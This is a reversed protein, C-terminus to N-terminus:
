LHALMAEFSSTVRSIFSWNACHASNADGVYLKAKENVVMTAAGTQQGRKVPEGFEREKEDTERKRDKCIYHHQM